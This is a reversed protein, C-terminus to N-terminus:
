GHIAKMVFYGISFVITPLAFFLGLIGYAIGKQQRFKFIQVLSVIGLILAIVSPVTYLIQDFDTQVFGGNPYLISWIISLVGFVFSIVAIKNTRKKQVPASKISIDTM